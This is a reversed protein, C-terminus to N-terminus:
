SVVSTSWFELFAAQWFQNTTRSYGKCPSAHSVAFLHFNSSSRVFLFMCSCACSRSNKCRPMSAMIDEFEIFHILIAVFAASFPSTYYMSEYVNLRLGREKMLIQTLILKATDAVMSLGLSVLGAWQIVITGGTVTLITGLTILGMAMLTTRDLTEMGCVIMAFMMVVPAFAKCIQVVSVSLFLYCYNGLHISLAFCIGTPLIYRLLVAISVRTVNVVGLVDVSFFMLLATLFFGFCTIGLPFELELETMIYKPGSNPPTLTM